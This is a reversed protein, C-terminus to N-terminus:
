GMDEPVPDWPDVALCRSAVGLPKGIAPECHEIDIREIGLRDVIGVLM